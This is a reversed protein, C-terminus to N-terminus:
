GTLFPSEIGKIFVGEILYLQFLEEMSRKEKEVHKLYVEQVEESNTLLEFTNLYFFKYASQIGFVQSHYEPFYLISAKNFQIQDAVGEM